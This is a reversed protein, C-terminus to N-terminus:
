ATSEEGYVGKCMGPKGDAQLNIVAQSITHPLYLDDSNLWAVIEGKARRLGKNVADAQGKDPESVWWGLDKEYKKIIEISGDTSAGDVIIYEIPEYEQELVSLITQELYEAQNYSPTIISVLPNTSM